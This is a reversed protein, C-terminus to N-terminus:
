YMSDKGCIVCNVKNTEMDVCPTIHLIESIVTNATVRVEINDDYQLLATRLERVTM